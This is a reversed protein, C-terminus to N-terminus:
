NKRTRPTNHCKYLPSLICTAKYLDQTHMNMFGGSLSKHITAVTFTTYYFSNSHM